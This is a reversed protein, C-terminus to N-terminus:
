NASMFILNRHGQRCFDSVNETIVCHSPISSPAQFAWTHGSIEMGSDALDHVVSAELVGRLVPTTFDLRHSTVCRIHSVVADLLLSCVVDFASQCCALGDRYRAHMAETVLSTLDFM